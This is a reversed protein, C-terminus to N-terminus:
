QDGARKGSKGNGRFPKCARRNIKRNKKGKKKERGETMAPMPRFNGKNPHAFAAMAQCRHSDGKGFGALATRM